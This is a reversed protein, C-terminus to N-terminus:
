GHKQNCYKYKVHCAQFLFPHLLMYIQSSKPETRVKGSFLLQKQALQVRTCINSVNARCKQHIAESVIYKWFFIRM